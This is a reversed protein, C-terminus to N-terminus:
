KEQTGQQKYRSFLTDEKSFSDDRFITLAFEFPMYDNRLLVSRSLEYGMSLIREPNSHFTHELKFDVKDSLFDFSVGDRCLHFAKKLSARILPYNDGDCPKHNFVGAAVVIDYRASLDAELFEAVIFRAGQRGYQRRGEEVLEEVLDIGTYQFNDGILRRLHGFLDGFGCGVDLITKGRCDFPSTLINFRIEQKGKTWGLAAPSYGMARFRERYRCVTRERDADKMRM